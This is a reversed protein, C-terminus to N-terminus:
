VIPYSAYNAIGCTNKSDRALMVYGKLGWSTGWSNKLLWYKRGKHTGYGVVLMAHNAHRKSCRPDSLVGSKYYRFSSRSADIAVAIPGVSAVAEQLAKESRQVLKYGRCRTGVKSAKHRCVTSRAEYPYPRTVGHAYVYNYAYNMWGGDCGRNGYTRSCDILNQESLTVLRGTKRFLQGELSGITAFAWCASCYKEEEKEEEEEEEEEQHWTRCKAETKAIAANWDPPTQPAEEFPGRADTVQNLGEIFRQIDRMVGKSRTDRMIRRFRRGHALSSVRWRNWLVLRLHRTMTSLDSRYRQNKVPTVYGRSRWDVTAPLHRAYRRKKRRMCPFRCSTPDEPLRVGLLYHKYEVPTLDAYENIGCVFPYFGDNYLCNYREVERQAMKWMRCLLPTIDRRKRVGDVVLLPLPVTSGFLVDHVHYAFCAESHVM